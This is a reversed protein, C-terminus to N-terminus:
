ITLHHSNPEVYWLIYGFWHRIDDALWTTIELLNNAQGPLVCDNLSWGLERPYRSLGVPWLFLGPYFLSIFKSLSLPNMCEAVLNHQFTHRQKYAWLSLKPLSPQLHIWLKQKVQRDSALVLVTFLQTVRVNKRFFDTTLTNLILIFWQLLM